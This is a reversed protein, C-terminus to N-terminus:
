VGTALAIEVSFLVDDTTHSAINWSNAIYGDHQALVRPEFCDHKSNHPYHYNKLSFSNKVGVVKGKTRKSRTSCSPWM